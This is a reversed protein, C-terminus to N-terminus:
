HARGTSYMAAADRVDVIGQNWYGLASEIEMVSPKGISATRDKLVGMKLNHAGKSYLFVMAKEDESTALGRAVACEAELERLCRRLEFGQDPSTFTGATAGARYLREFKQKDIPDRTPSCNSFLFLILLFYRM